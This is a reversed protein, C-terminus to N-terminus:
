LRHPVKNRLMVFFWKKRIERILGEFKSQNHRDPDTVHLDIGHKQVEKMFDTGKSTKENSGNCVLRDMVEFDDIFDRLGQGALSKKDMPYTAAFFSNNAFVQAYNNGDFSNYRGLM